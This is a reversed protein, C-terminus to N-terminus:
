AGASGSPRATVTILSAAARATAAAEAPGPGTAVVCGARQWSSTTESVPTGEAASIEVLEVDSGM